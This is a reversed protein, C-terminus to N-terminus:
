IHSLQTIYILLSSTANTNENDNATCVYVMEGPINIILNFTLCKNM